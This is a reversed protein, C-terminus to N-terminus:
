SLPKSLMEVMLNLNHHLGIERKPTVTKQATFVALYNERNQETITFMSVIPTTSNAFMERVQDPTQRTINPMHFGNIARYFYITM